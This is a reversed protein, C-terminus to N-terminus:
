GKRVKEVWNNFETRFKDALENQEETNPIKSDIYDLYELREQITEHIIEELPTVANLTNSFGDWDENVPLGVKKLPLDWTADLLIWENNIYAKLALHVMMPLEDALKRLRRPYDVELDSWMFHYSAYKVPINLKQYMWGLLFHKPSCSGRNQKLLEVPGNEPDTIGTMLFPIDRIHQFIRIRRDEPNLNTTWEDFAKLIIKHM